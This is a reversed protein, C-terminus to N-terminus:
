LERDHCFFLFSYGFFVWELFLNNKIRVELWKWNKMQFGCMYCTNYTKTIYYFDISIVFYVKLFM